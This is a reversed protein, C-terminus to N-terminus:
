GSIDFPVHNKSKTQNIILNEIFDQKICSIQVKMDALKKKIFDKNLTVKM